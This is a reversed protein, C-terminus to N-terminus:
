RRAKSSKNLLRVLGESTDPAILSHQTTPPPPPSPSNAAREQGELARRIFPEAKTFKGQAKLLSGLNGVSTLTDPHDRGLTREQGELARRHFQEAETFKGQVKLLLGLNNASALTEPHDVGQTREQEALTEKVGRM